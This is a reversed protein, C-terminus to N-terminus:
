RHVHLLVLEITFSGSVGCGSDRGGDNSRVMVMVVVVGIVVVM